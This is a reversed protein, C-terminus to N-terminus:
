EDPGVCSWTGQAMNATRTMEDFGSRGARVAAADKEEVTAAWRDVAAGKVSACSLAARAAKGTCGVARGGNSNRAM